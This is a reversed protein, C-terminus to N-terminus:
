AARRGFGPRPSVSTVPEATALPSREVRTMLAAQLARAHEEGGMRPELESAMRNFAEFMAGVEDGRTNSIRFSLDGSAADDLAKRMRKFPRSLLNASAYSIGFVVMMILMSLGILLGRTTDLAADMGSRDLVVDVKGFDAGAYKIPRVFRFGERGAQSSVSVQDPGDFDIIAEGGVRHYPKGILSKEMAARVVGRDDVVVMRRVNADKGAQDVFAQLPVWDQQAPPLGANEAAYVSANSTVFATISSGATLAMRQLAGSQRDLVVSVSGALAVATTACLILPLKFRLALGRRRVPEDHNLSDLERLLAKKVEAGDAFRQDPKKALLKDIIFRLGKPCDRVSRDIPQPDHQAIQIAITALGAGGFACKGTVMEYLVVGLSFLDARADVPLGMAQEPSMYRPTGVVQGVQTRVAAEAQADEEIRAIGFDLLKVAKGSDALLINSPKIDRHVIGQSHAYSLADAIQAGLALVRECPMRGGEKLVEDLPRGEVLEMAIYPFGDAQGVDYITAIHAHSLMGAAKSERLFRQVLDPDRRFEPKLIKIALARDIGPDHARYVDAMAGEGIRGDIRYRGVMQM